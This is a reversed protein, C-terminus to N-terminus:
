YVKSRASVPHNTEEVSFYWRTAALLGVKVKMVETLATKTVIVGANKIFAHSMAVLAPLINVQVCSYIFYLPATDNNIVTRELKISKNHETTNRKM